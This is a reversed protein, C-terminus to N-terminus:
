EVDNICPILKEFIINFLRLIRQNLLRTIEFLAKIALLRIKSESDSLCSLICTIIKADYTRLARQDSQIAAVISTMVELGVTKKNLDSSQLYRTSFIIIINEVIDPSYRIAYEYILREL